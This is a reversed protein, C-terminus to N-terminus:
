RADRVVVFETVRDRADVVRGIEERTRAKMPARAYEALLAGDAVLREIRADRDLIERALRKDEEDWGASLLGGPGNSVIAMVRDYTTWSTTTVEHEAPM